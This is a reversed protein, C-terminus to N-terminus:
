PQPDDGLEVEVSLVAAAGDPVFSLEAITGALVLDGRALELLAVQEPPGTVVCSAVPARM